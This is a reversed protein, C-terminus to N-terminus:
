AAVAVRPGPKRPKAGYRAARERIKARGIELVIREYIDARSGVAELVLRDEMIRYIIRYRGIRYSRYGVLEDSLLKGAEPRKQIDDFALRVQCKLDPPLHRVQEKLSGSVRWILKM